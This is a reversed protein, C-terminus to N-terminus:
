FAEFVKDIIGETIEESDAKSYGLDSQMGSVDSSLTNALLRCDQPSSTGGGYGDSSDQFAGDTSANKGGMELAFGGVGPPLQLVTNQDFGSKIATANSNTNTTAIQLEADSANTEANQPVTQETAGGGPSNGAASGSSNATQTGNQTNTNQTPDNVAGADPTDGNQSKDSAGTGPLDVGDVPNDPPPSDIHRLVIQRELPGAGEDNAFRVLTLEVHFDAPAQLYSWGAIVIGGDPAIAVDNAFGFTAPGRSAIAVGGNGFTTDLSGDANYRTLKEATTTNTDNFSSALLIRGDAQLAVHSGYYQWLDNSSKVQGNNGFTADLQGNPTYRQLLSGQPWATSMPDPIVSFDGYYWGAVLLNGASDIAIDTASSSCHLVNTEVIGGAGFSPDLTGDDNYRVLTIGFSQDISSGALIVKGDNQVALGNVIDSHAQGVTTIVKGGNGFTQDLGGDANYRAAAFRLDSAGAVVIQGEPLVTMASVTDNVGFPTITMGGNGFSTDVTGDSNFRGVFFHQLPVATLIMPVGVAPPTPLSSPGGYTWGYAISGAVLIKGDAEVAVASTNVFGLAAGMNGNNSETLGNAFAAAYIRGNSGFTADASGDANQRFLAFPEWTGSSALQGNPLIMSNPLMTSGQGVELLKGDPQIALSWHMSPSNPIVAIGNSVFSSDLVGASLLNRDELAELLPRYRRQLSKAGRGAVFRKLPFAHFM